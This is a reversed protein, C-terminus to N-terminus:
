DNCTAADIYKECLAAYLSTYTSIRAGEIVRWLELTTEEHTSVTHWLTKGITSYRVTFERYSTLLIQRFLDIPSRKSPSVLECFFQAISGIKACASTAISPSEKTLAQLVAVRVIDDAAKVAHACQTNEPDEKTLSNHLYAYRRDILFLEEYIRAFDSAHAGLYTYSDQKGPDTRGLAIGDRAGNLITHLNILLQQAQLTKASRKKGLMLFTAIDIRTEQPIEKLEEAWARHIMSIEPQVSDLTAALILASSLAFHAARM